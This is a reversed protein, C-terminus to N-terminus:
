WVIDPFEIGLYTGIEQYYHTRLCQCKTISCAQLWYYFIHKDLVWGSDENQWSSMTASRAVYKLM